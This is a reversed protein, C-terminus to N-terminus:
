HAKLKDHLAFPVRRPAHVVPPINPDIKIDYELDICGHGQYLDKYEGLIRTSYRQETSHQVSQDITYIIKM